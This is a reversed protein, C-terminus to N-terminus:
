AMERCGSAPTAAPRGYGRDAVEGDDIRKERERV